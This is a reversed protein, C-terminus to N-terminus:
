LTDYISFKEKKVATWYKDGYSWHWWETPFNVFGAKTMVECLIQRNKKSETHIDNSETYSKSNQVGFDTGMDLLNGKSDSISLDLAGGTSHPPTIEPPCVFKSAEKRLEDDSWNPNKLRLNTITKNWMEKQIRIPRHGCRVTIILNNPLLAQAKRLMSAVTKRVFCKKIGEKKLYPALNVKIKPCSEELDILPEGNEKIPIKVLESDPILNVM